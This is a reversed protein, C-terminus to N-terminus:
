RFIAEKLEPTLKIAKMGTQFSNYTINVNLAQSSGRESTRYVSATLGGFGPNSGPTFTRNYYLIDNCDVFLVTKNPLFSKLDYEMDFDVFNENDFKKIVFNAGSTEDTPMDPSCDITETQVEPETWTGVGTPAVFFKSEGLAEWESASAPNEFEVDCDLVIFTALGGKRTSGLVNCQANYRRIPADSCGPSCIGAM